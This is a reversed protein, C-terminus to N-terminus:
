PLDVITSIFLTTTAPDEQCQPVGRGSLDARAFRVAWCCGRDVRVSQLSPLHVVFKAHDGQKLTWRSRGAFAPLRSRRARKARRSFRAFGSPMTRRRAPHLLNHGWRHDFQVGGAPLRAMGTWRGAGVLFVLSSIIQACLFNRRNRTKKLALVKIKRKDADDFPHRSDLNFFDLPLFNCAISFSKSRHVLIHRRHQDDVSHLLPCFNNALM